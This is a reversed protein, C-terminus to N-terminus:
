FKKVTSSMKGCNECKFRSHKKYSAEFEEYRKVLRRLKSEKKMIEGFVWFPELVKECRKCTVINEGESLYYGYVHRCEGEAFRSKTTFTKLLEKDEPPTRKTKLEIIEASM